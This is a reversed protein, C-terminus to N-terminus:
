SKFLMSSACGKTESQKGRTEGKNGKQKGKIERKNGKPFCFPFLYASKFDEIKVAQM